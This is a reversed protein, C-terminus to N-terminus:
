ASRPHAPTHGACVHAHRICRTAGAELAARIQRRTGQEDLNTCSCNLALSILEVEKRPPVGSNWPNLGVRLLLDAGQPDWEKLKDLSSGWPGVSQETSSARTAGSM